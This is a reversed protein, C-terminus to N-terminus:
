LTEKRVSLLTLNLGHIRNLIGILASQDEVRGSLLMEGNDTLKVDLGELWDSWSGDLQGRVRIEYIGSGSYRASPNSEERKSGSPTSRINRADNNMGDVRAAARRRNM